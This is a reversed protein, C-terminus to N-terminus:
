PFLRHVVPVSRGEPRMTPQPWACPILGFHSISSREISANVCRMPGSSVSRAAVPAVAQLQPLVSVVESPSHEAPDLRLRYRGAGGRRLQRSTLELHRDQPRGEALAVARELEPRFLEFDVVGQLRELDDGKKSLGALRDEVDFMGVQRAM